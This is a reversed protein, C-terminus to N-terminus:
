ANGKSRPRRKPDTLLEDWTNSRSPALTASKVVGGKAYSTVRSLRSGRKGEGIDPMVMTDGESWDVHGDTIGELRSGRKGRGIDPTDYYGQPGLVQPLRDGRRGKGVEPLEKRKAM